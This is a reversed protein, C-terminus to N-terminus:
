LSPFVFNGKAWELTRSLIHYHYSPLSVYRIRREVAALDREWLGRQKLGQRQGFPDCGRPVLNVRGCYLSVEIDRVKIAITYCLGGTYGVM